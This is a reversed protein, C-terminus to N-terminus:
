LDSWRSALTAAAASMTTDGADDQPLRHPEFPGHRRLYDAVRGAERRAGDFALDAFCDRPGILRGDALQFALAVVRPPGDSRSSASDALAVPMWPGVHSGRSGGAVLHPTAYPELAEGVSPFAGQARVIAVPDDNGAHRGAVDAIREASAVAAVEGTSRTVVRKVIFQGPSGIFALLDYVEEPTNFMIKRWHKVDHVEFSFGAHLADSLVLGATNFPDAFTRYLPLNFAGTATKDGAFVLIPESPREALTLEASVPGAGSVNGPFEDALLDQGPSYLHLAQAVGAGAALADWALRHVHVDSEGRDHSLVLLLNDGCIYAQADTVTASQVGQVLTARAADLVDPHTTGQGGFGGVGAQFVSLTQPM